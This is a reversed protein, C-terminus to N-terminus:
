RAHNLYNNITAAIVAYGHKNPHPDNVPYLDRKVVEAQLDPLLDVVEFKAQRLFGAIAERALDEQHLGDALRPYKQIYGARELLGRYVYEKTPILAVILRFKEKEAFGRTDLMVQKTIEVAAKIRPDGMDLFRAGPSLNFIVDHQGDRYAILSGDDRGATERKRVFDFISSRTLAAYFVSHRALWDRLPGLFKGSGGEQRVFVPMEEDFGGLNGYISWNKNLRVANYVDLLDNGFYFGIIVIKPHLKVAETRLVHLYEIPGRAGVGMNYVSTGRLQGLVAPWSDRAPASIGYTMSDGICVIDAAEPKKPNRFGWADHGGSYGEIRNFLFDDHVVRPLLYDVPDFVTRALLEAAFLSFAVSAVFLLLNVILRM